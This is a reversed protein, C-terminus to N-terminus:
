SFFVLRLWEAIVFNSLFYFYIFLYIFLEGPSGFDLSRCAFDAELDDFGRGCIGGFRGSVCVTLLLSLNVLNNETRSIITSGPTLAPRLDGDSCIGSGSGSGFGSGGFSVTLTFLLIMVDYENLLVIVVTDISDHM